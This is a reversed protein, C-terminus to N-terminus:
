LIDSDMILNTDLIIKRIMCNQFRQMIDCTHKKLFLLITSGSPHFAHLSVPLHWLFHNRQLTTVTTLRIDFM